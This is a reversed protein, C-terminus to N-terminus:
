GLEVLGLALAGQILGLEFQGPGGQLPVLGEVLRRGAGDAKLGEVLVPRRHELGLGPDVGLLLAQFAVVQVLFERLAVRRDVPLSDTRRPKAFGLEALPTRRSAGPINTRMRSLMPSGCRARRTM